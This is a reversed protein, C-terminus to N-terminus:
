EAELAVLDRRHFAVIAASVHVNLSRGKGAMPIFVAAECARMVNGLLGRQENGLVFCTREPYAFATYPVSDDALEVAILSWGGTRLAEAADDHREFYDWDIRRHHGLSTVAVQPHGPQPTRGSLVMLEAGLADAVRFMGGVNYPDSWDQLWFAVPPSEESAFKRHLGRVQTKRRLQRM